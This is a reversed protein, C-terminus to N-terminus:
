LKFISLTLMTSHYCVVFRSFSGGSVIFHKTEKNLHNTRAKSEM